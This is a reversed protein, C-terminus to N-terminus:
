VGPMPFWDPSRGSLRSALMRPALVTAALVHQETLCGYPYKWFGIQGAAASIAGFCQLESSKSQLISM